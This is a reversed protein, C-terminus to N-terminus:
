SNGGTDDGKKLLDKIDAKPPLRGEKIAKNIERQYYNDLMKHVKENIKIEKKDFFGKEKLTRIHKKYEDPTNPDELVKDVLFNTVPLAEMEKYVIKLLHKPARSQIEQLVKLYSM